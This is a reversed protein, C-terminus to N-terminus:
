AAGSMRQLNSLAARLARETEAPDVVPLANAAPALPQGQGASSPADFRRFSGEDAAAVPAAVAKAPEVLRPAQGPFIVVPEHAQLDSAPDDVRVFAGRAPNLGLLSACQEGSDDEGPEDESIQAAVLELPAAAAAVAPGPMAIHRPPLLSPDEELFADLALPRMASPLAQPELVPPAAAVAQDLPLTATFQPVFAAPVAFGHSVPAPDPEAFSAPTAAPDFAVPIPLAAAEVPAFEAPEYSAPIAAVPAEATAAIEVPEYAAVADSPQAASPAVAGAAPSGTAASTRRRAMADALRAALDTMGLDASSPLPATPTPETISPAAPEFPATAVPEAAAVAVPAADRPAFLPSAEPVDFVTTAYGAAKVFDQSVHGDAADVGFIQRSQDNPEPQPAMGFVQRGDAHVAASDLVSQALELQALEPLALEPLALPAAADDAQFVQRQAAMAAPLEAPAAPAHAPAANAWDLPAQSPQAASVAPMALTGLDLAETAAAEPVTLDIESIDFVQPATGPLPAMDRPVFDNVATENALARRRLASPSSADGGNGLEEHASIPARAPADPHADRSRYRVSNASLDKAGRKRETEVVKPRTIRRALAIGLVAGLGALALAILIRATVGLPPATAPIILDIHSKLVLGEILTPRVALSGLGFLAGFWLAVVAPFLPNSTIPPSKVPKSAQKAM